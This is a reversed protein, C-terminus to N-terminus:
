APQRAPRLAKILGSLAPKEGLPTAAARIPGLIAATTLFTAGLTYAVAYVALFGVLGLKSEAAFGYASTPPDSTLM